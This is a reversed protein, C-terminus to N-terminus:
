ALIHIRTLRVEEGPALFGIKVVRAYSDIRAAEKAGLQSSHCRSLMRTNGAAM